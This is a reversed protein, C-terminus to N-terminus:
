ETIKPIEKVLLAQEKWVMQLFKIDTELDAIQLSKKNFLKLDASRNAIFVMECPKDNFEISRQHVQILFKPKNLSMTDFSNSVVFKRWKKTIKSNLDRILEFL